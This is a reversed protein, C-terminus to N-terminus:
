KDAKYIIFVFRKLLDQQYTTSKIRQLHFEKKKVQFIYIHQNIM